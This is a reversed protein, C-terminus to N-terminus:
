LYRQSVKADHIDDGGSDARAALRVRHRQRILIILLFIMGRAAEVIGRLHCGLSSSRNIAM